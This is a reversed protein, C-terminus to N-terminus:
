VGVGQLLKGLEPDAEDDQSLGQLVHNSSNDVPVGAQKLLHNELAPNPFLQAGATSMSSIFSGLEALDSTEIDGHTLRPLRDVPLGNLRFLDPIAKRNMVEVISDMWTGIATAFLDTKSSSLSFTGVKTHGLLIFDALATMLIRQDWRSIIATTDFQRRSNSALLTLDYMKNGNDDFALPLILGEQEDRRINTVIKKIEEYLARREPPADPELLDPPVWAVPLGALDREVGIAEINEIHKKLYWSRYANRLVSRGEPNGKRSEPRFLLSKELPIFRTRYDPAASQWMGLVDGCENFEWQQLSDQGRIALKRWGTRGDTYKSCFTPDTFEAGLRVKYVIEHWSWGYTFMSLIEGLTDIWPQEMDDFCSKLFESNAIDQPDESFPVIPWEVQRILMKVAFLLSGVTADNEAMETYIKIASRGRLEPLFEEYVYGGFRNLGTSGLEVFRTM